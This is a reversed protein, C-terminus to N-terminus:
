LGYNFGIRRRGNLPEFIVLNYLASRRMQYNASIPVFVIQNYLVCLYNDVGAVTKDLLGHHFAKGIGIQDIDGGHGCVTTKDNEGRVIVYTIM